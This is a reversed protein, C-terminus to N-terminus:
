RKCAGKQAQMLGRGSMFANHDETRKRRWEEHEEMSERQRKESALLAERDHEEVPMPSGVRCSQWHASWNKQRM